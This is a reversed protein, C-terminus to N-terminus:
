TVPLTTSSAPTQQAARRRQTDVRSDCRASTIGTAVGRTPSWVVWTLTSIALSSKLADRITKGLRVAGTAVTSTDGSTLQGTSLQPSKCHGPMYIRGRFSRGAQPTLLTVVIAQQLGASMSSGNAPGTPSASGMATVHGPANAYEYVTIKDISQQTTLLNALDSYGGNTGTIATLVDNAATTLTPGTHSSQSGSYYFGITGEEGYGVWHITTRLLNAVSM